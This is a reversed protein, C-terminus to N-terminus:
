SHQRLGFLSLLRLNALSVSRSTKRKGVKKGVVGLTDSHVPVMTVLISKPDWISLVRYQTGAYYISSDREHRSGILEEVRNLELRQSCHNVNDSYLKTIRM